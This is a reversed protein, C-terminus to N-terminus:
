RTASKRRGAMSQFVGDRRIWAHYLAAGLHLLIVAYFALAFDTHLGRLRAYLAADPSLIAPLRFGGVLVIPHPAASLMAWGLLPMVFMLAYLLVHSIKAAAQQVQPLSAPLAPAPNLLRHALRVVALVLILIGLPRHAALLYRYRETATSVMGIGIFLMALIMLAMSWHLLRALPSFRAEPANV